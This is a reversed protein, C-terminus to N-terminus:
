RLIVLALRASAMEFRGRKSSLRSHNSSELSPSYVLSVARSKRDRITWKALCRTVKEDLHSSLQLPEAELVELNRVVAYGTRRKGNVYYSLGDTFLTLGSSELPQDQVDEWLCRCSKECWGQCGPPKSTEQCQVEMSSSSSNGLNDQNLTVRAGSRRAHWRGIPAQELTVSVTPCHLPPSPAHGNWAQTAEVDGRGSALTSIRPQRPGPTPHTQTSTHEETTGAVM